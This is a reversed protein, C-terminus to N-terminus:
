ESYINSRVYGMLRIIDVNIDITNWNKKKKAIWADTNFLKKNLYGRYFKM